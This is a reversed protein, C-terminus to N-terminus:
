SPYDYKKSIKIIKNIKINKFFLDSIHLFFM